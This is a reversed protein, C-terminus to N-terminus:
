LGLKGRARDVGARYVGEILEIVQDGPAGAAEFVGSWDVQSASPGDASIRVTSVYNKVPLPSDNIIAYSFERADNDLSELREIVEGGANLAITRVAGVGEGEVTCGAIMENPEIGAFNSMVRWVADAPAAVSEVIKANIM